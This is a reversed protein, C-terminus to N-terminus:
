LKATVKISPPSTCSQVPGEHRHQRELLVNLLLSRSKFPTNGPFCLRNSCGLTDLFTGLVNLSLGWLVYEKVEEGNIFRVQDAGWAWPLTTYDTAAQTKSQSSPSPLLLSPFYFHDSRYKGFLRWLSAYWVTVPPMLADFVLLYALVKLQPNLFFSAPIWRYSQVEKLNLHLPPTDKTLQLYVFSSLVLGDKKNNSARTRFVSKDSLQMLMAFARQDSLDLGIEENVEREAVSQDSSDSDDRRGGPFAVQGSWRDRPNIARKIFLIEPAGRKVWEQDFFSLMDTSATASAAVLSPDPDERSPSVRIVIAVSARNRSPLVVRPAKQQEDRLVFEHLRQLFFRDWRRAEAAVPGREAEERQAM